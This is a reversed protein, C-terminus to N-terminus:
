FNNILPRLCEALHRECALQAEDLTPYIRGKEIDSSDILAWFEDANTSYRGVTYMAITKTYGPRLKVVAHLLWFNDKEKWKPASKEIVPIFYIYSPDGPCADIGWLELAHPQVEFAGESDNWRSFSIRSDLMCRVKKMPNDIQWKLGEAATVQKWTPSTMSAGWLWGEGM